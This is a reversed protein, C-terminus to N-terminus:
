ADERYRELHTGEPIVYGCEACVSDGVTAGDKLIIEIGDEEHCKPCEIEMITKMNRADQCDVFTGM